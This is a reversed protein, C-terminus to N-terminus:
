LLDATQANPNQGHWWGRAAAYDQGYDSLFSPLLLLAGALTIASLTLIYWIPKM